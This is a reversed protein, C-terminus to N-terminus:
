PTVAKVAAAHEHMTGVEAVLEAIAHEGTKVFPAIEDRYDTSVYPEVSRLAHYLKSSYFLVEEASTAIRSALAEREKPRTAEELRHLLMSAHGVIQLSLDVKGGKTWAESGDGAMPAVDEVIGHIDEICARIENIFERREWDPDDPGVAASKERVGSAPPITTSQEPAGGHPADAAAPPAAKSRRDSAAGTRPAPRSVRRSAVKSM